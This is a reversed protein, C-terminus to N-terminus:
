ASPACGTEEQIIDVRRGVRLDLVRVAELIDGDIMYATPHRFEVRIHRADVDHLSRLALPEGRYLRPLRWLLQAATIRGALLQLRGPIQGARYTARFGLGIDAVASTYILNVARAPLRRGDCAVTAAVPRLMEGALPGGVLGSVLSEVLLRGAAGPGRGTRAYYAHLFNVVAGAGVMFGVQTRNVVILERPTVAFPRGARYQRVVATLVDAPDRQSWGVSRAVNNMAGARLPLFRPLPRSGYARVLASLARFYSGDGGCVAFIEVGRDRCTRVARALEALSGPAEALGDAGLLAAFRRARAQARRNHRAHPNVIVGIGPM